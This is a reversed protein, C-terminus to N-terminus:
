LWGELNQWRFNRRNSMLTHYCAADSRELKGQEPQAVILFSINIGKETVGVQCNKHIRPDITWNEIRFKGWLKM